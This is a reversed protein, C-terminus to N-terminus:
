KKEPAKKATTKKTVTKKPAVKKETKITAKKAVVAPAKGEQLQKLARTVKSKQRAANNKHLLNKKLATDIASFTEPLMKEVKAADSAKLVNKVLTRMKTNYHKNRENAKRSQAVRKKASKIIPM